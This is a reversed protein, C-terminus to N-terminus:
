WRYGLKGPQVFLMISRGWFPVGGKRAVDHRFLRILVLSHQTIGLFTTQFIVHHIIFFLAIRTNGIHSGHEMRLSALAHFSNSLSSLCHLNRSQHFIIHARKAMESRPLEHDSPTEASAPAKRFRKSALHDRVGSEGKKRGTTHKRHVTEHM